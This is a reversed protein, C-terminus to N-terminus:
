CVLELRQAPRLVLDIEAVRLLPEAFHPANEFKAYAFVLNLPSNKLCSHPGDYLAKSL